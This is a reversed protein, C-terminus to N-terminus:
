GLMLQMDARDEDGVRVKLFVVYVAFFAAALLVALDGLLPRTPLHSQEATPITSDSHTVLVVGTFSRTTLKYQM